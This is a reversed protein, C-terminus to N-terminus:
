NKNLIKLYNLDVFSMWMKLFQDPEINLVSDINGKNKILAPITEKGWKYIIFEILSYGYTFANQFSNLNKFDPLQDQHNIVKQLEAKQGAHYLAIGEWLWYPIKRPDTLRMTVLHTFEHVPLIETMVKFSIPLNPCLPSAMRFENTGWATGVVWNNANEMNVAKHFSELTPYIKVTIKELYDMGFDKLIQPRIQTLTELIILGANTSDNMEEIRFFDNELVNNVFLTDQAYNKNQYCIIMILVLLNFFQVRFFEIYSPKFTRKQIQITKKKETM